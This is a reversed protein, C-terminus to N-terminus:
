KPSSSLGQDCNLAENLVKESVLWRGGLRFCGPLEGSKALSYALQRSIGLLRSAEVVTITKRIQNHRDIQM